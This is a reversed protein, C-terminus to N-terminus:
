SCDAHFPLRFLRELTQYRSVSWDGRSLGGHVMIMGGRVGFLFADVYRQRFRQPTLLAPLRSVGPLLNPFM